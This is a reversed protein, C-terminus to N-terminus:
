IISNNLDYDLIEELPIGGGQLFKEAYMVPPMRKLSDHPRHYNYDLVWEQAKEWLQELSEFVQANM